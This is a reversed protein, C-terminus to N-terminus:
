SGESKSRISSKPASGTVGCGRRLQRDDCAVNTKPPVPPKHHHGDESADDEPMVKVCNVCCVDCLNDNNMTGKMSSM